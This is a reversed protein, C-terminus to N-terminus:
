RTVSAEIQESVRQMQQSVNERQEPTLQTFLARLMGKFVRYENLTTEDDVVQFVRREDLTFKDEIL